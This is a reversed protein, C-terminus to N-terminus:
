RATLAMRVLTSTATGNWGSPGLGPWALSSAASTAECASGTVTGFFTLTEFAIDASTCGHYVVSPRESVATWTNVSQVLKCSPTASATTTETATMTVTVTSPPAVAAAPSGFLPIETVTVTATITSIPLSGDAGALRSPPVFSFIVGYTLKTAQFAVTALFSALTFLGLIALIDTVKM